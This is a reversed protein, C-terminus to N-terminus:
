DVIGLSSILHCAHLVVNFVDVNMLFSMWTMIMHCICSIFLSVFSLMDHSFSCGLYCISSVEMLDCSCSSSFLSTSLTLFYLHTQPYILSHYYIVENFWVTMFIMCVQDLRYLLLVNQSGLDLILSDLSRDGLSLSVWGFGSPHSILDYSLYVLSCLLRKIELVCSLIVMILIEIVLAHSLTVSICIQM